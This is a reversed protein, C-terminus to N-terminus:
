KYSYSIEVFFLITNTKKFIIIIEIKKLLDYLHKYIYMYFNKVDYKSAEQFSHLKNIEQMGGLLIDYTFHSQYIKAPYESVM